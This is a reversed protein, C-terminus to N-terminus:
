GRRVVRQFFEFNRYRLDREHRESSPRCPCQTARPSCINALRGGIRRVSNRAGALRERAVSCSAIGAYSPKTTLRRRVEEDNTALRSRRECYSRRFEARPKMSMYLTM